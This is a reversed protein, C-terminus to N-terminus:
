KSGGESDLRPVEILKGQEMLMRHQPNCDMGKKVGMKIDDLLGFYSEAHIESQQTLEVSPHDYVNNPYFFLGKKIFSICTSYVDGALDSHLSEPVRYVGPPRIISKIFGLPRVLFVSESWSKIQGEKGILVKKITGDPQLRDQYVDESYRVYDYEIKKTRPDRIPDGNKDRKPTTENHMLSTWGIIKGIAHGQHKQDGQVYFVKGKIQPPCSVKCSDILKKYWTITPLEDPKKFLVYLGYVAFGLICGVILLVIVNQALQSAISLGQFILVLVLIMVVAIGLYTLVQKWNM